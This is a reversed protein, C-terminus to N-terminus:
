RKHQRDQHKEHHKAKKGHHRKDHKKQYTPVYVTDYWTDQVFYTRRACAGYQHCYRDWHEAQDRPVRLYIPQEVYVVKEVIVPQAYVLQPPPYDGIDIQGYFGPQGLSISIGVDAASISAATLMFVSAILIRKM